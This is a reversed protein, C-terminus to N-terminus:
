SRAVSDEFWLRTYAPERDDAGFHHPLTIHGAVLKLLLVAVYQSAEAEVHLM